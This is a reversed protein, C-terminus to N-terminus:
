ALLMKEALDQWFLPDIKIIAALKEYLRISCDKLRDKNDDIFSLMYEEAQKSLGLRHTMNSETVVQRLRCVIETRNNVGVNFYMSRSMLASLHPALKNGRAILDDFNLNTLFIISGKFDFTGPIKEGDDSVFKRESLWSVSRNESLELASKLINLGATSDFISDCDDFIIVSGKERHQWLLKFMATEKAFGRVMTYNINSDDLVKKCTYSKGLGPAGSIILSPALGKAVSGILTEMTFYSDRIRKDMEEYSEEMITKDKSIM